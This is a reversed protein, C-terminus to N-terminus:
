RRGYKKIVYGLGVIVAAIILIAVVGWGTQTKVTIRFEVSETQDDSDAKIYTVYDGTLADSGPTITAQVEKTAGAELVDITSEEFTVNWGSPASSTLNINELDINGSNTLKMTVKSEKNAYADLSVKGDTTTMKLDYTGM